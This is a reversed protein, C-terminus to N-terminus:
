FNLLKQCAKKGTDIDFYFFPSYQSVYRRKFYLFLGKFEKLQNAVTRIAITHNVNQYDLSKLKEIWISSEEWGMDDDRDCHVDNASVLLLHAVFLM